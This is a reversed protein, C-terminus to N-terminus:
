QDEAMRELEIRELKKEYYIREADEASTKTENLRKLQTESPATSRGGGSGSGAGGCGGLFMFVSLVALVKISLKLSSM